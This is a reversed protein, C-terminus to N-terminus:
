VSACQLAIQHAAVADPGILGIVLTAGSFLACELTLMAGIPVGIVLLERLRQWDPRWLRSFTGFRALSRDLGFVLGLAVAMFLSALTSALGAGFLGLAPFGLKGHILVWNGLANFAIAAFTVIVAPRIRELAALSTRFVM